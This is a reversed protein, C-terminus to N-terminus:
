RPEDLSQLAARAAVQHAARKTMGSGVGLEREGVAVVVDFTRQHDPGTAAVTRYVPTGLGLGQTREQLLSKWDTIPNSADLGAMRTALVRDLLGRSAQLGGDLHIAAILAELVNALIRDNVHGTKREGRGLRVFSALDLERAVEALTAARVLLHKHKSLRGEDLGPFQSYLRDCVHFALISDGLFELSENDDCPRQSEHSYSRHTLARVLLDRDAFAHGLVGELRELKEAGDTWEPGTV